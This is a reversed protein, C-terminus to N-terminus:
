GERLVLRPPARFTLGEYLAALPLTAGLAPLDIVAELGNLNSHRWVRDADRAWLIVDPADPDALVIYDLSELSKYEELKRALDFARTSQSLVEIVLRPAAAYAAAADFPGCHVGVDPRRVNGNPIRIAVDATFM